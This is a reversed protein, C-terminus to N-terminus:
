LTWVSRSEEKASWSDHIRDKGKKVPLWPRSLCGYAVADYAHDEADTDPLEPKHKDHGIM